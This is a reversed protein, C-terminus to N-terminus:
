RSYKWVKQITESAFKAKQGNESIYNKFKTVFPMLLSIVIALIIIRIIM